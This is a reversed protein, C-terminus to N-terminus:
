GLVKRKYCAYSPGLRAFVKTWRDAFSSDQSCDPLFGIKLYSKIAPVRFNDTQLVIPRTPLRLAAELAVATVFTGLGKRQHDPHTAVWRIEWCAKGFIERDYVSALAVLLDEYEVFFQCGDVLGGTMEARIKDEDWEGLKGNANLLGVWGPLDGSRYTRAGYGPPPGPKDTVPGTEDTALTNLDFNMLLQPESKFGPYLRSFLRSGPLRSGFLRRGLQGLNSRISSM